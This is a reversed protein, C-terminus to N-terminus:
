PIVPLEEPPLDTFDEYGDETVAVNAELIFNGYPAVFNPEVYLVMGAQIITPDELNISPPETLDLGAGHGIRGLRGTYEVVGAAEFERLCVRMLEAIPVGPRITEVCRRQTRRVVEYARRREASAEGIAMVRAVDSWYGRYVCGTDIYFMNGRKLRRETPGGTLRDPAGTDANVPNYGPRDAGQRVNATALERYVDRETMGVRLRAFVDRMATNNIEVARRVYAIEAPSKVLRLQWLLGGADVFRADPLAERLQQLDGYPMGMRQGTGWECGITRAGIERLFEAMEPVGPAEFAIFTRVDEVFSTQRANSEESAVVVLSPDRERPFIFFTPRFKNDWVQTVHGSLYRYNTEETILLADIGREAMLRRAREWRGAFEERSFEAFEAAM